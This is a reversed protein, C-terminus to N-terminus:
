RLWVKTAFLLFLFFVVLFVGAISLGALVAGLIFHVKEESNMTDKQYQRRLKEAEWEEKTGEFAEEETKAPFHFEEKERNM